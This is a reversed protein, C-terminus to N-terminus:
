KDQSTKLGDINDPTIVKKFLESIEERSPTVRMWKSVTKALQESVPPLSPPPVEDGYDRNLISNKDHDHAAKAGGTCDILKDLEDDDDAVGDSDLSNDLDSVEPDSNVLLGSNDAGILLQPKKGTM